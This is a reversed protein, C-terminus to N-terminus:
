YNGHMRKGFVAKFKRKFDSINHAGLRIPSWVGWEVKYCGVCRRRVKGTSHKHEKWVHRGLRGKTRRHLQIELRLLQVIPWKILRKMKRRCCFMGALLEVVDSFTAVLQLCGRTYIKPAGEYM